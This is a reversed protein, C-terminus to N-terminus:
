RPLRVSTAETAIDHVNLPQWVQMSAVEAIAQGHHRALWAQERRVGAADQEARLAQLLVVHAQVPESGDFSPELLHRAAQPRQQALEAMALVVRRWKGVVPSRQRELLEGHDRLWEAALAHQGQRQALYTLALLQLSRSGVASDDNRRLLPRLVAAISELEKVDGPTCLTTVTAHQLRQHIQYAILEPAPGDAAVAAHLSSCDRQEASVLLHARLRMRQQLDDGRPVRMLVQQAQADLGQAVLVDVELDDAEDNGRLIQAQHLTRMAQQPQGVGLQARALHIMPYLRLPDQPVTAARAYPEAETFRNDQLLAWSTNSLGAFSDPYIKALARWQELPWGGPELEAQWGKLYLRERAPLRQQQALAHELADRAQQVQATRALLKAVGM